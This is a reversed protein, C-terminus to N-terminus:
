RRVLTRTASHAVGDVMQEKTVIISVVILAFLMMAGVLNLLQKSVSLNTNFYMAVTYLSNFKSFNIMARINKDLVFISFINSFFLNRLYFILM